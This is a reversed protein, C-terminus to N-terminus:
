GPKAVEVVDVVEVPAEKVPAALVVDSRGQELALDEAALDHLPEAVVRPAGKEVPKGEAELAVRHEAQSSVVCCGNAAMLDLIERAHRRGVEAAAELLAASDSPDLDRVAADVEDVYLLTAWTAVEAVTRNPEGAVACVLESEERTVVLHRNCSVDVGM